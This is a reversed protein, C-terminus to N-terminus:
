ELGAIWAPQKQKVGDVFQEWGALSHGNLIDWLEYAPQGYM